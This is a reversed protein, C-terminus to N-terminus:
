RFIVKVSVDLSINSWIYPGQLRALIACLVSWPLRANPLMPLNQENHSVKASSSVRDCHASVPLAASPEVERPKKTPEPKGKRIEEPGERQPFCRCCM